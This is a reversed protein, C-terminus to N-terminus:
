GRKKVMKQDGSTATETVLDGSFRPWPGFFPSNRASFSIKPSLEDDGISIFTTSKKRNQGMKPCKPDFTVMPNSIEPRASGPRRVEVHTEDTHPGLTWVPVPIPDPGPPHQGPHAKYAMPGGLFLSMKTPGQDRAAGRRAAPSGWPNIKESKQGM